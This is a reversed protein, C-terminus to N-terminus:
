HRLPLVKEKILDLIQQHAPGNQSSDRDLEVLLM